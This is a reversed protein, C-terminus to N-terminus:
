SRHAQALYRHSRMENLRSVAREFAFALRSGRYLGAPDTQATVILKVGHDYLADILDIFRKAVDNRSDDMVPVHDILVTHFCRAIEVYDAAARPTECLASFDFWVVDDSMATVDIAHHNIHLKAPQLPAGPALELFQACIVRGDYGDRFVHYAGGKEILNLRYDVGGELQVVTTNHKILDIAPLFRERQLGNKYLEDPRANSTMVMAVGNAMLAHLLGSLLMADAIDNVHFEDLCLLRLEGALGRAIVTLPDPSRPLKKMEEHVGQMFRHFHVRRKEAFPLSNYLGDMLFTKGRGVGGWLYLGKQLPPRRNFLRLLGHNRRRVDGRLLEDHLAQVHSLARRQGPDDHFDPRELATQYHEQPTVDCRAM